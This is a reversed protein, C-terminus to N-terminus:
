KGSHKNTIRKGDKVKIKGYCIIEAAGISVQATAFTVDYVKPHKKLLKAYAEGLGDEIMREYAALNMGIMNKIGMFFDSFMHKTKVVVVFVTREHM